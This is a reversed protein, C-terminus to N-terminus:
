DMEDKWLLKELSNTKKEQNMKKKIVKIIQRIMKNNIYKVNNKKNYSRKRFEKESLFNYIIKKMNEIIFYKKNSKKM